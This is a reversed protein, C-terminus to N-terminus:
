RDATFPSVAPVTDGSYKYCRRAERCAEIAPDDPTVFSLDEPGGYWAVFPGNVWYWLSAEETIVISGPPVEDFVGAGIEAEFAERETRLDSFRDVVWSNTDALLQPGLVIAVGAIAILTRRTTNGFAHRMAMDRGTAGLLSGVGLTLLLVVGMGSLLVSVYPTGWALEGMQWRLTVAVTASPVIVFATGATLMLLREPGPVRAGQWSRWFAVLVGLSLLLVAYDGLGAIEWGSTLGPKGETTSLLQYSFPFTGSVQQFFARAVALPAFSLTYAPETAPLLMRFYLVTSGLCVLPIGFVALGLQRLDTRFFLAIYIIPVLTLPYLTEYTMLGLSWLAGAVLLWLRPRGAAQSRRAIVLATLALFSEIVLGPHQGAFQLVPDHFFRFQFSFLTIAGAMSAYSWSRTAIHVFLVVACWAGLAFALQILKYSVRTQFIEFILQAQVIFVPFFRGHVNLWFRNHAFVDDFVTDGSVARRMPAQSLPVDDGSYASWLLPRLIYLLILIEVLLIGIM